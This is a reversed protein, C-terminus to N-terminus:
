AASPGTSLSWRTSVEMTGGNDNALGGGLGNGAVTGAGGVAENGVVTSGTVRMVSRLTSPPTGFPAKLNAIAGGRGSQGPGGAAQNGTFTGRQVTFTADGALAVNAIAGGSGNGGSLQVSAGGAARNGHFLSDGVTFTSADNMIAGGLGNARSAVGVGAAGGVARNDVFTCRTVGATAPATATGVSAIAGGLAAAAPLGPGAETAPLGDGGTARNGVFVTDQVTLRGSNFVGGGFADVAAGFGPQGVVENNSVVAHSLTLTGDNRIGGGRLVGRGRTVTLDDITVATGAAITFVRSLDSGSVALRSAGPGDIRLDGTISLEGSTLAVTGRAAAAFRITDPGPNTNALLVAQRLSDAGSDALTRVTFTSPVTRDELPEVGLRAAGAKRPLRTPHPGGDPAPPAFLPRVSRLWSSRPM